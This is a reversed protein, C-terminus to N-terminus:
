LGRRSIFRAIGKAFRSDLNYEKVENQIASAFKTKWTEKEKKKKKQWPFKFGLKELEDNFAHQYIEEATKTIKGTNRNKFKNYGKAIGYAAGGVALATTAKTFYKPVNFLAKSVPSTKGRGIKGVVSYDASRLYDKPLVKPAVKGGVTKESMLAGTTGCTGGIYCKEIAQQAKTKVRETRRLKPTVWDLMQNKIAGIAKYDKQEGAKRAVINLSSTAGKNKYIEPIKSVGKNPRLLTFHASRGKRKESLFETMNKPLESETVHAWSGGGYSVNAKTSFVAAHSASPDSFKSVVSAPDFEIAASKLAKKFPVGSKRQQKFEKWSDKIGSKLAEPATKNAGILVDGPRVHKRVQNWTSGLYKSSHVKAKPRLDVSGGGFAM